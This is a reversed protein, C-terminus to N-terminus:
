NLPHDQLHNDLIRHYGAKFDCFRCIFPDKIGHLTQCHRKFSFASKARFTCEKCSFPKLETHLKMHEKFHVEHKYFKACMPCRKQWMMIQLWSKNKWWHFQSMHKALDAPLNTQFTCHACHFPKDPNEQHKRKCHKKLDWAKSARYDCFQCAYKRAQGTHLQVHFKFHNKHKITKGCTPCQYSGNPLQWM